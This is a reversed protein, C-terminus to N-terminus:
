KSLKRKDNGTLAAASRSIDLFMMEVVAMLFDNPVNERRTGARANETRARVPQSATMTIAHRHTAVPDLAHLLAEVPILWMSKAGLYAPVSIPRVLPAALMIPKTAGMITPHITM